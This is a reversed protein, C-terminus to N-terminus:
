YVLTGYALFESAQNSIRSTEFRVNVVAVANRSAAAELMRLQSEARAQELVPNYSAVEGGVLSRLGAVIQRIYDAGVVVAGVVLEGHRPVVGSPDTPVPAVQIHAVARQRSEIASGRRQHAIRGGVAVAILILPIALNIVLTIM